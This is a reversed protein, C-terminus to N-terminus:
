WHWAASAWRWLCSGSSSMILIAPGLGIVSLGAAALAHWDRLGGRGKALFFAVALAPAVFAANYKTYIAALLLAASLYIAGTRGSRLYWALAWATAAILAYAPIDLMVQRGWFAVEPTGVALLAAGVASWRPLILRSLGYTAVALLVAFAAVTAQAVFNSVGFLAYSVAEVVYFLPPYFLITLAPRMLYYHIAWGAPDRWPHASVFDMIFAGNLAHRPADGWWFDGHTPATLLLAMCALALVCGAAVSGVEMGSLGAVTDAPQRLRAVM